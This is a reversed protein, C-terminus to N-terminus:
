KSNENSDGKVYRKRFIIEERELRRRTKKSLHPLM